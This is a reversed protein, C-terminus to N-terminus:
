NKFWGLFKDISYSLLAVEKANHGSKSMISKIYFINKLKALNPLHMGKAFSGAGFGGSSVTESIIDHVKM